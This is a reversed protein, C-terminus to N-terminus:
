WIDAVKATTSREGRPFKVLIVFPSVARAAPGMVLPMFDLLENYFSFFFSHCRCKDPATPDMQGFQPSEVCCSHAHLWGPQMMAVARGCVSSLLLWLSQLERKVKSVSMTQRDERPLSHSLPHNAVSRHLSTEHIDFCCNRWKKLEKRSDRREWGSPGESGHLESHHQM